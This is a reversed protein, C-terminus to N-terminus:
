MKTINFKKLLEVAKQGKIIGLDQSVKLSDNYIIFPQLDGQHKGTRCITSHDSTILINTDKTNNLLHKILISDIKSIFDAKEKVNRRHAAEDAGNLHILVFDNDKLLALAKAAKEELNTDTDATAYKLTPTDMGMALSIGRVIETACVSAGKINHLEKFGPIMQKKSLGWPILAYKIKKDNLTKVSEKVFGKLVPNEPIIQKFDIGINEHPPYEKFSNIITEKLVLLNKYYSMHYFEYDVSHKIKAAKKKYEEASFNGGHSAKLRGEEDLSVFNCRMVLDDDNVKIGQAVAELYARGEPINEKSAGLLNLICTLSDVPYGAINNDFFGYCGNAKMYEMNLPCAAEYPTKNALEKYAEDTMGDIIIMINKM